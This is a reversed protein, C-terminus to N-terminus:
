FFHIEEALETDNGRYFKYHIKMLGELQQLQECEHPIGIANSKHQQSWERPFSHGTENHLIDRQDM